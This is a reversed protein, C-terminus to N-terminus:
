KIKMFKLRNVIILQYGMIMYREENILGGRGEGRVRIFLTQEGFLHPVNIPISKRQPYFSIWFYAM